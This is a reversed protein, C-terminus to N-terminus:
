LMREVLKNIDDKNDGLVGKPYQLKSNIGGRPPHLRFFPKLGLNGLKKGDILEDAVKEADIKLKTKDGKISKAREKLLKVLTEKSIHGYAVAYRVKKLLGKESENNLNILSAAYKRKLRLRGLANELDERIKALGEIRILITLSGKNKEETKIKIPKQKTTEM